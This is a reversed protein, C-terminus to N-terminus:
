KHYAGEYIKAFKSPTVIFDLSLEFPERGATPPTKGTLFASKAIHAFFREWWDLNQRKPDERWRAKLHAARAGRWLEVNVQRGMPLIRHYADIIEQHPCPPVSPKAVGAKAPTTTIDERRKEERPLADQTLADNGDDNGNRKFNAVRKATLARNKATKGNHRDFKPLFCSGDALDLWGVSIMAEAFCQQGAIRDILPKSVNVANGTENHQDWWAWVRFCKGFATDPDLGLREAITFVEPKDPTCVEVKIWDGAM